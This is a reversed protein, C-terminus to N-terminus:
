RRRRALLGLGGLGLLLASSPEPVAEITITAIGNAYLNADNFDFGSIDVGTANAFNGFANTVNANVGNLTTAGVDPGSQGLLGRGPFLAAVGGPGPAATAFDNDETGADNITGATGINFSIPGGGSFLSSLDHALPNGNAVYYDNSPLVMSVYSFFQNNALSLDGTILSASEGPQLPPPGSASGLTFDFRGATSGTAAVTASTGTGSVYTQGNNFDTTIQATNGDEAVRELGPQSSLGGNYSDFNGNHFGGWVPTLAVGNAIPLLSV